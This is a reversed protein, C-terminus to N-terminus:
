VGRVDGYFVDDTWLPVLEVSAGTHPAHWIMHHGAYIAVHYVGGGDNFFVLDGPQPNHTIVTNGVQAASSHPLDIGIHAFVWQTFGSCDFASPGAAGYVYPTGKKSAAVDLIKDRMQQVQARTLAHHHLHHSKHHARHKPEHHEAAHHEAKHAARHKAHHQAAHKAAHHHTTAPATEPVAHASASSPVAAVALPTAIMTGLIATAVRNRVLSRGANPPTLM